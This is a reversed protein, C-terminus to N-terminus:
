PVEPLFRLASVVAPTPEGEADVRLVTGPESRESRVMAFAVPAAGLMPSVASSTVVGVAPGGEDAFLEAGAVPQRDAGLRLGVLVQRPRGLNETRAVIEQGPYCGKRFSVRDHLVGTEHPLNDPGFDVNFLPTGAEIRAVNFAHWGAPRVRAGVGSRGGSALLADWVAAAAGYEVVLELGITGTLDRRAAVVEAGGLSVTAATGPAPALAAGSAAALVELSQPGHVALHYLRGTMDAIAVDESFVLAALAAATTAASHVDLDVLLRDGLEILFLDAEIRGKRNLRFAARTTGPALGKIAQTLLRDLFDLRDGGTVLLTGRHPCDLLAAGRRIAAYEGPLDGFTGVVECAPQGDPGGPGYPIFEVQPAEVQLGTAAGPRHAALSAPDPARPAAGALHRDRLPSAQIM